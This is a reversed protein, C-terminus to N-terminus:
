TGVQRTYGKYGELTELLGPEQEKTCGTVIMAVLYLVLVAATM